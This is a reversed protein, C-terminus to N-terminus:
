EALTATAPVTTARVDIELRVGDEITLVPGARPPEMGFDTLLIDTVATGSVAGAEFTAAVQWTTPRTVGHVTLLGTMEFSAAGSTPLPSPLGNAGTLVLEATPFQDTRLTMRQIYRDRNASDSELTRLDVVVRSQETLIAGSADILIAGAVDATRGIAENFGRGALVERAVYRAESGAGIDVRIADSALVSQGAAPRTSAGAAGVTLAATVIAAAGAVMIVVLHTAARAAFLRPM